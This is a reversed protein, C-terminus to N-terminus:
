NENHERRMKGAKRAPRIVLYEYGIGFGFILVLPIVPGTINYNGILWFIFLLILIQLARLVIMKKM